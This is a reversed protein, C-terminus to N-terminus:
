QAAETRCGMPVYKQVRARCERRAEGTEAIPRHKVEEPETILAALHENLKRALLERRAELFDEYREVKWLAPDMPIFQKALAGPYKAEITPLYDAPRRTRYRINSAATLYARNAIENVMQRHVHNDADYGSSYLLSQPFIHHSHL